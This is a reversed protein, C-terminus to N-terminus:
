SGACDVCRAVTPDLDLRGEPIADGCEECWGYEDEDIRKLARNISVLRASRRRSQAAAMAQQQLADMRSLRGVSTQDLEVPVRDESTEAEAARLTDAEQHLRERFQIRKKEDM